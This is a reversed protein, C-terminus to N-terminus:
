ESVERCCFSVAGGRKLCSPCELAPVAAAASLPLDTVMGAANAALRHYWPAEPDLVQTPLKGRVALGTASSQVGHWIAENISKVREPDVPAREFTFGSGPTATQIGLSDFSFADAM